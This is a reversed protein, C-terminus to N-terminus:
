KFYQILGNTIATAVRRQYDDTQVINVDYQNSIFGLELLVSPATTDRLVKYNAQMSGRNTLEVSSAISSQIDAALPQDEKHAYYTTTGSVSLLPFSDYHISIFADTQYDNSIRAREELSVFYDGSRTTIVNAGAEKLQNVVHNSTSYVIDKEWVDGLGISGPDKGGHGPDIVITYGALSGSSAPQQEPANTVSESNSSDSATSESVVGGVETTLWSAIWGTEGNPLKVQYWDGQSSIVDFEDGQYASHTNKYNTGAGARIMVSEAAVTVSINEKMESTTSSVNSTSVPVLHHKAVWVEKGGYYTQVWDYQEKFTTLQNGKVFQGVISSENSPASRINLTSSSVEYTDTGNAHTIAPSFLYSFMVILIMSFLTAISTKRKM